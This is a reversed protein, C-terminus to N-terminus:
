IPLSHKEVNMVSMLTILERINRLSQSMLSPSEFDTCRYPKKRSYSERINLPPYATMSLKKVNM